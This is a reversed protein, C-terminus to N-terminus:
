YSGTYCRRSSSRASKARARRFSTYDAAFSRGADACIVALGVEAPGIIAGIVGVKIVDPLNPFGSIWENIM